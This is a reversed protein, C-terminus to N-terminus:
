GCLTYFGHQRSVGLFPIVVQLKSPPDVMGPWLRAGLGAELAQGRAGEGWPSQRIAAFYATHLGVVGCRVQIGWSKGHPVFPTDKQM